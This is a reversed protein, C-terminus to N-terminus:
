AHSLVSVTLKRDGSCDIAQSILCLIDEIMLVLDVV